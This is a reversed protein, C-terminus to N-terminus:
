RRRDVFVAEAQRVGAYGALAGRGRGVSAMQFKIEMLRWELARRNEDDARLLDRLKALFLGRKGVVVAPTGTADEFNGVEVDLSWILKEREDLLEGLRDANDEAIAARQDRAIRLLEECTRIMRDLAEDTAEGNM